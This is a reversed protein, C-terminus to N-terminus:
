LTALPQAQSARTFKRLYSKNKKRWCPKNIAPVEVESLHLSMRSAPPIPDSHQGSASAESAAKSQGTM